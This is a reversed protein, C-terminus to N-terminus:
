LCSILVTRATRQPFFLGEKVRAKHRIHQAQARRHRNHEVELRRLWGEEVEYVRARQFRYGGRYKGSYVYLIM